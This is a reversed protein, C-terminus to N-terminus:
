EYVSDLHFKLSITQRKCCQGIGGLLEIAWTCACLFGDRVFNCKIVMVFCNACDICETYLQGNVTQSCQFLYLFRVTYCYHFSSLTDCCFNISSQFICMVKVSEAKTFNNGALKTAKMSIAFLEMKHSCMSTLLIVRCYCIISGIAIIVFKIPM